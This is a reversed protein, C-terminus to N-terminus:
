RFVVFGAWSAPHPLRGGDRVALQAQRLAAAPTLGAVLGAYFHVMLEGTDEDDVMWLSACVQAAGGLLLARALGLVGESVDTRGNATDCASAVVLDAVLAAASIDSVRWYPDSEGDPSFLLGTLEPRELDLLGHTAFHAWRWGAARAAVREYLSAEHLARRAPRRHRGLWGRPANGRHARAGRALEAAPQARQTATARRRGRDRPRGTISGRRPRGSEAYGLFGTCLRTAQGRRHLALAVGVSPTFELEHEDILSPADSGGDVPLCAFPLLHLPGDPILVLRTVDGAERLWALPRALVAGALQELDPAPLPAEDEVAARISHVCAALRRQTVDIRFVRLADRTVCFCAGRDRGIVYTLLASRAGLLLRAATLDGAPMSVASAGSVGEALERARRREATDFARAGLEHAHGTTVAGAADVLALCLDDYLGVSDGFYAQRLGRHPVGLSGPDLETRTEEVLALASEAIDFSEAQRGRARVVQALEGLAAIQGDRSDIEEYALRAARMGAEAGAVDGRTHQLKALHLTAGAATMADGAETALSRAGGLIREAEDVRDVDRSLMLGLNSMAAAEIARLGGARAEEAAQRYMAAAADIRGDEDVLTAANVLAITARARDGETLHQERARQYMGAAGRTDGLDHLLAAHNHYTIAKTRPAIAGPPALREEVLEDEYYRLAAGYRGTSHAVFGLTGLMTTARRHDGLARHLGLAERLPAVADAHHGLEALLVGRNGLVRARM